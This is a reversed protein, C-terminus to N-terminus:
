KKGCLICTIDGSMRTLLRRHPKGVAICISSLNFQSRRELPSSILIDHEERPSIAEDRGNGFYKM